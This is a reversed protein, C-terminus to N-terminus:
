AAEKGDMDWLLRAWSDEAAPDAIWRALLWDATHAEGHAEVMHQYFPVRPHPQAHTRIIAKKV